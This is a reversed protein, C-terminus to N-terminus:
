PTFVVRMLVLLAIAFSAACCLTIVFWFLYPEDERTFYGIRQQEWIAYTSLLMLLAMFVTVLDPDIALSLLGFIGVLAM